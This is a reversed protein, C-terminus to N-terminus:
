LGKLAAEAEEHTLFVTKGIDSFKFQFMQGAAFVVNIFNDDGKRTIGIFDVKAEYPRDEKRLHWFDLSKNTYVMDGVACPLKLLRRQEELDEYYKLHAHLEAMAWLNRYFLAILGEISDTGDMLCSTIYEDFDEDCTFSDDGEAFDKLLKRALTRADIEVSYDRYWAERDKVFCSNHALEVMNMESVEKSSTLRKM